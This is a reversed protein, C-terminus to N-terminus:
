SSPFAAILYKLVFTELEALSCLGNGNPDATLFAAKRKKESKYMKSCLPEFVSQFLFFEKSAGHKGKGIALGFSNPEVFPKPVSTSTSAEPKLQNFHVLKLRNQAFSFVRRNEKSGFVVAVSTEDFTSVVVGVTGHPLDEDENM